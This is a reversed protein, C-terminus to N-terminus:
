EPVLLNLLWLFPNFPDFPNFPNFPYVFTVDLLRASGSWGLGNRNTLQARSIRTQRPAQVRRSVIGRQADRARLADHRLERSSVCGRTSGYSSSSAATM